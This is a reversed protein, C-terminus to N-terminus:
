SPYSRSLSQSKLTQNAVMDRALHLSSHEQHSAQNKSRKLCLPTLEFFVGVAMRGM